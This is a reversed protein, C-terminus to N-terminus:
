ATGGVPELSLERVGGGKVEWWAAEVEPLGDEATTLFVQGVRAVHALVRVRVAADLESLADDLLLVPESGVARAVPRAEALRLVLAMLRQQGRSGFVRLDRGDVEILLDDRHPGLLTQGRRLEEGLRKEIVAVVDGEAADEALTSRYEIRVEGGGALEPYLRKAEVEIAAVAERRRRVVDIGLRALQDNWPALRSRLTGPDLKSQLLHNRRALVQRYRAYATLHAPYLKGAFGDVFGRRAQPGGVLIALDQWGFPIVRAWSCGEGTVVWTGDERRTIVRRMALAADGRRIEGAVVAGASRWRPMEAARAGRFSRGVLLVGLGELLNTKGQANPGTLVNLRAAPNFTLTGYNRFDSFEVGGIHV